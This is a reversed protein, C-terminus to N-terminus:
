YILGAVYVLVMGVNLVVLSREGWLMGTLAWLSNAIIFPVHHWNWEPVFSALLAAIILGATAAWALNQYPKKAETTMTTKGDINTTTGTVITM